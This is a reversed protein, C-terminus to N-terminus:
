WNSCLTGFAQESVGRRFGDPLRDRHEDRSVTEVLLGMNELPELGARAHVVELGDSHPLVPRASVDRERDGGHFAGITADDARRFDRAVDRLAPAGLLRQPMGLLRRLRGAAGLVFEERHETVLQAVGEAGDVPCDADEVQLALRVVLGRLEPLDEMPLRGMECPQEIIQEVDRSQGRALDLELPTGHVELGDRLAREAAERLAAFRGLM